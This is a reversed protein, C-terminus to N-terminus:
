IKFGKKNEQYDNGISSELKIKEYFFDIYQIVEMPFNEKQSIKEKIREINLNLNKNALYDLINMDYNNESSQLVRLELLNFNQWDQWHYHAGNKELLVMQELNVAYYLPPHEMCLSNADWGADILVQIIDLTSQHQLAFILPAIYTEGFDSKHFTNLMTKLGDLDHNIISMYFASQESRNMYIFFLYYQIM